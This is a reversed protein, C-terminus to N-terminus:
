TSSSFYSFGDAKEIAIRVFNTLFKSKMQNHDKFFESAMEKLM